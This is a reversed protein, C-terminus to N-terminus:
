VGIVQGPPQLEEEGEEAQAATTARFGEVKAAGIVRWRGLAGTLACRSAGGSPRRRCCPCAPLVCAGRGGHHRTCRPRSTLGSTWSMAAGPLGLRRLDRHRAVQARTVRGISVAMHPPRWAGQLWAKRGLGAAHSAMLGAGRRPPM